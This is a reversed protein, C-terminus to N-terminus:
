QQKDIETLRQLIFPLLYTSPSTPAEVWCPSDRFTSTKGPSLSMSSLSSSSKQQIYNEHRTFDHAQGVGPTDM